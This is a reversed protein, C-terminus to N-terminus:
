VIQDLDAQMAAAYDLVCALSRLAFGVAALGALLASGHATGNQIEGIVLASVAAAVIWEGCRKVQRGTLPSLLAGGELHSFLQRGQWLAGLLLAAPLLATLREMIAPVGAADGSVLGAGLQKLPVYAEAFLSLGAFGLLLALFRSLSAFNEQLRSLNNAAANVHSRGYHVQHKVYLKQAKGDLSSQFQLGSSCL